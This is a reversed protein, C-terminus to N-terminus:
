RASSAGQVRYVSGAKAGLKSGSAVPTRSAAEVLEVRGSGPLRFAFDKFAFLVQTTGNTWLVGQQDPLLRRKVLDSEVNLYTDIATKFWAVGSGGVQVYRAMEPVCRNALCRFLRQRVNDETRDRHIWARPQQDCLMDENGEYWEWCNQGAIGQVGGTTKPDVDMIGAASVGFPGMGELAINGIGIKQLDAIFEAIAFANPEMGRTYDLPLFGLNGLSDIWVYDLGGEEKWRKLDDLIWQRVGTNMNLSALEFNPYGGAYTLTNFGRLVWDPHEQFIPAHHAMHPALWIGAEMGLAHAKDAFYRWAKMGGWFEAPRFRHTCCCSGVNLDGHIGHHLKCELGRQSPDSESIPEPIVRKVGQAALKPLYDDAMAILWEQSPVWREGVQMMFRGDKELRQGYALTREPLPRSRRIGFHSRALDSCYDYADKWRNRREYDALGKRGAPAFLICKRPVDVTSAATGHTADVVFFVDEAPNKQIFSRVDAKGPWYGLLSGADSALFDFCQHPSWRHNWQFSMGQPKGFDKLAKLCASTFHTDPEATYVAPTVQGQSLITNGTAHGGIEWTGVAVLRHTKETKSEFRWAYSFGQYVLGELELSEARLIWVLSDEVGANAQTVRFQHDNYEDGYAEEHRPIGIATTAVSVGGDDLSKVEGVRFRVYEMGSVSRIWPYFPVDGNRLPVRGAKVSGLGVLDGAKNIKLELKVGNDFSVSIASRRKKWSPM